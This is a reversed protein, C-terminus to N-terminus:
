HAGVRSLWSGFGGITKSCVFLWDADAETEGDAETEEDTEGETEGDDLTLLLGDELTLGLGLGDAAGPLVPIEANNSVFVPPKRRLSTLTM